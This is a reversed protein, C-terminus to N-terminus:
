PEKGSSKQCVQRQREQYELLERGELPVREYVQLVVHAPPPRNASV